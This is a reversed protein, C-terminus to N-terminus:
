GAEADRIAQLPNNDTALIEFCDEFQVMNGDQPVVTRDTNNSVNGTGLNNSFYWPKCLMDSEADTLTRIAENVTEVNYEAGEGMRLLAETTFKGVLYGM